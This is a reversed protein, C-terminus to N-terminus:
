GEQPTSPHADTSDRVVVEFLNNSDAQLGALLDPEIDFDFTEGPTLFGLVPHVEKSSGKWTIRANM